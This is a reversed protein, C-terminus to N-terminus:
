NIRALYEGAKSALWDYIKQHLANGSVAYDEPHWQIGLINDQESGWAEPVGDEAIAYCKLVPFDAVIENHRSNTKLTFVDLLHQLPSGNTITVWHASQKATKHKICLKPKKVLRSSFEAAIVQAGASIGLVPIGMHLATYLAYAYAQSRANPYTADAPSDNYYWEPSEFSGGPLILGSCGALQETCNQYDLFIPEVGSKVVAYAYNYDITYYGDEHGLLFGVKPAKSPPTMRLKEYCGGSLKIVSIGCDTLESDAIGFANFKPLFYLNKEM